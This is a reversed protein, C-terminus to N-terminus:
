LNYINSCILLDFIFVNTLLKKSFVIYIRMIGTIFNNFKLFLFICIACWRVGLLIQANMKDCAHQFDRSLVHHTSEINHYIM